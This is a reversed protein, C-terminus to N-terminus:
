NQDVSRTEALFRRNRRVAVRRRRAMTRAHVSHLIAEGKPRERDLDPDVCEDNPARQSSDLAALERQELGRSQEM